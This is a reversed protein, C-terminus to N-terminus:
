FIFFSLYKSSNKFITSIALKTTVKTPQNMQHVVRMPIRSEGIKPTNVKYERENQAKLISKAVNPHRPTDKRKM